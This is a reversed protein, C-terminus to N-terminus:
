LKLDCNECQTKFLIGSSFEEKIVEIEDSREVFQHASDMRSNRTFISSGYVITESLLLNSTTRSKKRFEDSFIWISMPERTWHLSITVSSGFFFCDIRRSVKKSKQVKKYAITKMLNEDCPSHTLIEALQRNSNMAFTKKHSNINFVERSVSILQKKKFPIHFLKM